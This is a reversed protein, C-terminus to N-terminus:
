FAFLPRPSTDRALKTSSIQVFIDIKNYELLQRLKITQNDKSRSVNQFNVM